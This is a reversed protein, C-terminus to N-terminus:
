HWAFELNDDIPVHPNERSDMYDFKFISRENAGIYVEKPQNAEQYLYSTRGRNDINIGEDDDISHRADTTMVSIDSKFSAKRNPSEVMLLSNLPVSCDIIEHMLFPNSNSVGTSSFHGVNDVDYDIPFSAATMDDSWPDADKTTIVPLPGFISLSNHIERSSKCSSMQQLPVGSDNQYLQNTETPFNDAFKDSFRRRQQTFKKLQEVELLSSPTVAEQVLPSIVRGTTTLQTRLGIEKFTIFSEHANTMYIQVSDNLCGNYDDSKPEISVPQTQLKFMQERIARVVRDHNSLQEKALV